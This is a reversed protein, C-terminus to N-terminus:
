ILIFNHQDLSFNDKSFQRIVNVFDFRRGLWQYFQLENFKFVKFPLLEHARMVLLYPVSIGMETKVFLSSGPQLAPLIVRLRVITPKLYMNVFSQIYLINNHTVRTANLIFTM